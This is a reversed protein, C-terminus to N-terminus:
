KVEYEKQKKRNMDRASIVRILDKRITFVVFLTRRTDTHGLVYYRDEVRSHKVDPAAVLPRNFFIQESESASVHHREWNKLINGVDWEFGTCRSIRKILNVTNYIEIIYM